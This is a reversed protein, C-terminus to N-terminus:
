AWGNTRPIMEHRVYTCVAENCLATSSRLIYTLLSYKNRAMVALLLVVTSIFINLGKRFLGLNEVTKIDDLLYNWTKYAVYRFSKRGINTGFCPKALLPKTSSRLKRM